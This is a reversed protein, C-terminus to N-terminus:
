AKDSPKTSKNFFGSFNGVNLNAIYDAKAKVPDADIDIYIITKADIRLMKKDETTPIVKKGKKYRLKKKAKNFAQSNQNVIIKRLAM